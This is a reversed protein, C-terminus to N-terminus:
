VCFGKFSFKSLYWARDDVNKEHKNQKIIHEIEHVFIPPIKNEKNGDKAKNDDVVNHSHGLLTKMSDKNWFNMLYLRKEKKKNRKSPSQLRLNLNHKIIFQPDDGM